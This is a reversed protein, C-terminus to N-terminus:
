PLALISKLWIVALRGILYSIFLKSLLALIRNAQIPARLVVEDLMVIIDRRKIEHAKVNKWRPLLDHKLMRQDATWSRKNAKAYLEIYQEAIEGFPPVGRNVQKETASDNGLASEHLLIKAKERADALGLAPTLVWRIAGYVDLM